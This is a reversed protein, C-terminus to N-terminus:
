LLIIYKNYYFLIGMVIFDLVWGGILYRKWFGSFIEVENKKKRSENFGDWIGM